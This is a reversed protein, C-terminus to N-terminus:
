TDTHAPRIRRDLVMGVVGGVAGAAQRRDRHNQVGAWGVACRAARAWARQIDAILQNVRRLVEHRVRRCATSALSGSTILGERATGKM